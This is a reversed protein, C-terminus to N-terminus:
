QGEQRKEVGQRKRIWFSAALFTASFITDIFSHM